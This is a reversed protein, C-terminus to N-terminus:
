WVLPMIQYPLCASDIIKWEKLGDIFEPAILGANKASATYFESRSPHSPSAAHYTEGFRDENL